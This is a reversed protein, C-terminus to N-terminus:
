VLQAGYLKCVPLTPSVYGICYLVTCHFSICHLAICHLAICHLVNVISFIICYKNRANM